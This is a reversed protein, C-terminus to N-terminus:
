IQSNTDRNYLCGFNHYQLNKDQDIIYGGKYVINLFNDYEIVYHPNIFEYRNKIGEETIIHIRKDYEIGNKYKGSILEGWSFIGEIFSDTFYLFGKGDFSGKNFNGYYKVSGDYNFLIGSGQRNFDSDFEGSYQM